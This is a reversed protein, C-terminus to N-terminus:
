ALVPDRIKSSSSSPFNNEQPVWHPTVVAPQLSPCPSPSYRIVKREQLTISSPDDNVPSYQGEDCRTLLALLLAELACVYGLIQFLLITLTSSRRGPELYGLINKFETSVGTIFLQTRTGKPVWSYAEDYMYVQHVVLSSCM